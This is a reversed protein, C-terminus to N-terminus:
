LRVEDLLKLFNDFCNDLEETTKIKTCFFAEVRRLSEARLQRLKTTNSSENTRDQM